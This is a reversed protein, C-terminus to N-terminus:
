ADEAGVPPMGIIIQRTDKLIIHAYKVNELANVISIFETDIM